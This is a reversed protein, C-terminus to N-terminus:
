FAYTVKIVAEAAREHQKIKGTVLSSITIKDSLSAAIGITAAAYTKIENLAPIAFTNSSDAFSLVSNGQKELPQERIISFGILPKLLTDNIVM